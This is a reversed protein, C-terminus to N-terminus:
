KDACLTSGTPDAPHLLATHGVHDLALELLMRVHADSLDYLAARGDRRVDVIRHARLLRLSHSTASESIGSVAALDRVRMPGPLLAILLRVRTPEGLLAFVDALDVIDAAPPMQDIVAAVHSPDNMKAAARDTLPEQDTGNM